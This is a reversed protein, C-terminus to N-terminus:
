EVPEAEEPQRARASLWIGLGVGAAAAAGLLRGKRRKRRAAEEDDGRHWRRSRQEENKQASVAAKANRKALQKLVRWTAWGIMANRRNVISM